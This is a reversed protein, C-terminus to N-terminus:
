LDPTRLSRSARAPRPHIVEAFRNTLLYSAASLVAISLVAIWLGTDGFHERLPLGLGPALASGLWISSSMVGLYAGQHGEPALRLAAQESAPGWIMNGIIFALTLVLVAGLTAQIMLTLFAAGMLITGATLCFTPSFGAIWRAIRLQFLVVLAPGLAYVRGWDSPSLGHSQSLVIPLVTEYTYVVTWASITALMLGYLRIDGFVASIPRTGAQKNKTIQVATRTARLTKPVTSTPLHMVCGLSILCIVVVELHLAWWGVGVLGSGLLPGALTGVSVVLRYAAFVGDREEGSVSEVLAIRQAVNRLPQLFTVVVLVACASWVQLAPLLLAAACAVQLASGTVAVPRPGIRDTLRGGLYGGAMGAAGALMFAASTQGATAKLPGVLWTGFFTMFVSLAAFNTAIATLPWRAPVPIESGLVKRVAYNM